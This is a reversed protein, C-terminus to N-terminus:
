LLTLDNVYFFSDGDDYSRALMLGEERLFKATKVDGRSYHFEVRDALDELRSTVLSQIDVADLDQFDDSSFFTQTDNM